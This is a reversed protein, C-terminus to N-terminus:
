AIHEKSAKNLPQNVIEYVVTGEKEVKVSVFTVGGEIRFTFTETFGSEGNVKGPGEGKFEGEKVGGTEGTIECTAKTLASLHLHIGLEHATLEFGHPSGSTNLVNDLNTGEPSHPGFHGVGAVTTCPPAAKCEGGTKEECVLNIPEELSFYTSAGPALGNGTFKVFGENPNLIEFETGPGEYGTPGFPCGSPKPVIAEACLGDGDLGFINAGSIKIQTLPVRSNNQVGLLTDEINDYPGQTTDNFAKLQEKANFEILTHCSTDAGVNPCQTFPPTPAASAVSALALAAFATV